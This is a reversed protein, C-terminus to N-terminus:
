LYLGKVAAYFNNFVDRRGIIGVMKNGEFVPLTHANKYKMISLIEELTTSTKIKIVETSMAFKVTPISGPKLGNEIIDGSKIMDVVLFLDGETIIGEIKGKKGIVPLGSIRAKIMIEAIESLTATETTTIVNKTMIDKATISKLRRKLEDLEFNMKKAM